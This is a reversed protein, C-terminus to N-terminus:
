AYRAREVTARRRSTVPARAGLWGSDGLARITGHFHLHM